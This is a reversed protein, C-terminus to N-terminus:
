YQGSFLSCLCKSHPQLPHWRYFAPLRYLAHSTLTIFHDYKTETGAYDPRFSKFLFQNLPFLSIIGQLFQFIAHVVTFM